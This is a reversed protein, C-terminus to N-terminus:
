AGYLGHRELRPFRGVCRVETGCGPCVHGYWNPVYCRGNPRMPEGCKPCLLEVLDAQVATRRLQNALPIGDSM